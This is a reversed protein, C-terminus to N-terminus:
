GALVQDIRTVRRGLQDHVGGAHEPDRQYGRQQQVVRGLGPAPAPDPLAANAKSKSARWAVQGCPIALLEQVGQRCCWPSAM